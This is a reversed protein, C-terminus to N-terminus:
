LSWMGLLVVHFRRDAEEGGDDGGDEGYGHEASALVVRAGAEVAEAVGHHADAGAILDQKLAIM